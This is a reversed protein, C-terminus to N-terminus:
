HQSFHSRSMSQRHYITQAATDFTPKRNSQKPEAFLEEDSLKRLNHVTQKTKGIAIAIAAVSSGAKNMRQFVKRTHNDTRNM